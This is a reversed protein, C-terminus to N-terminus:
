GFCDKQGTFFTRSLQHCLCTQSGRHGKRKKHGMVSREGATFASIPGFREHLACCLLLPRPFSPSHPVHHPVPPPPSRPLLVSGLRTQTWCRPLTDAASHLHQSARARGRGYQLKGSQASVPPLGTTCRTLRQTLATRVTRNAQDARFPFRLVRCHKGLVRGNSSTQSPPRRPRLAIIHGNACALCGIYSAACTTCM